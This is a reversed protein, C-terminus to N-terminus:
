SRHPELLFSPLETTMALLRWQEDMWRGAVAHEGWAGGEHYYGLRALVEDGELFVVEVEPNALDYVVNGTDIRHVEAVEAVLDAFAPDDPLLTGITVAESGFPTAHDPGANPGSGSSPAIEDSPADGEGPDPAPRDLGDVLVQRIEIRDTTQVPLEAARGLGLTEVVEIEACLAPHDPATCIRYLGLVAEEPFRVRHPDGSDFAPGDAWEIREERFRDAPMPESPELDDTDSSTAWLWVWADDVQRELVFGPGRTAQGPFVVEFAGGAVVAEPLVVMVDRDTVDEEVFPAGEEPYSEPAWHSPRGETSSGATAETAGPTPEQGVDDVVEGCAVLAMAGVALTVVLKKGVGRASRLAREQDVSVTSVDGCERPNGVTPM